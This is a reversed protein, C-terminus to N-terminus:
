SGSRVQPCTRRCEMLNARIEERIQKHLLQEKRTMDDNGSSRGIAAEFRRQERAMAAQAYDRCSQVCLGTGPSQSTILPEPGLVSDSGTCAPGFVTLAVAAPLLVLMWLGPKQRRM